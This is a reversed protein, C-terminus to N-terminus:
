GCRWRSDTGDYYVVASGGAAIEVDANGVCLIRNAATSGTDAHKLTIAFSGVNSLLRADGASTAAFGTINIAANSSIRVIGGTGLSLNNQSATFQTLTAPANGVDSHALTVTGTRGAVSQVPAAAAAASTFDTIASATHTHSTAAYATSVSIIGSADISVGSGIRVGGIAGSSAIPLRAANLTGANIASANHTHTSAAADIFFRSIGNGTPSDMALGGLFERINLHNLNYSVEDSEMDLLVDAGTHTHATPVRADTLRTDSGLVVQTSGADGTAAVNRSAATGADSITALTQTGTHTARDRLQSDTANATAGTAIGDLKTKAASANWWAAIAQFVRLASFARRTTATGAEAEAQSITDASWERSDSLRADNGAAVTGAADGIVPTQRAYQTADFTSGTSGTASRRYLVGQHEYLRGQNHTQNAAWTVPATTLASLTGGAVTSAGNATASISSIVSGLSMPNNGQDIWGPVTIVTLANGSHVGGNVSEVADLYGNEALQTLFSGSDGSSLPAGDPSVLVESLTNTHSAAAKGDLAAQLGNVTSIAQTGAHTSRDRLQADTANATAGSQIGDLKTKAASAAWWAAVAQFIRQPTFARRSTSTGAEAEAQTATTASWERSDSLRADDGRCASSSSTGYTVTLAGGSVALGTGAAIGIVAATSTGSNTIPAAVAVTGSSGTPGFGGSVSVDIQTEGVSAQIQPQGSVSANIPM